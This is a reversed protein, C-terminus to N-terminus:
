LQMGRLSLMLTISDIFALQGGFLVLTWIVVWAIELVTPKPVSTILLAITLGAGLVEIILIADVSITFLSDARASDTASANLVVFVYVALTCAVLVGAVVYSRRSFFADRMRSPLPIALLPAAICALLFYGSTDHTFTAGGAVLSQHEGLYWGFFIISAAYIAMALLTRLNM